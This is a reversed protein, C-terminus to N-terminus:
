FMRLRTSSDLNLGNPYVSLVIGSTYDVISLGYETIALHIRPEALQHTSIIEVLRNNLEIVSNNIWNIVSNRQQVALLSHGSTTRGVGPAFYMTGDINYFTTSVGADRAIHREEKSLNHALLMDGKYRYKAIEDPFYNHLIRIWNDDAFMVREKGGHNAVDILIAKENTLYVLLVEKTRKYFWNGEEVDKSLHFHYINWDNVLHDHKRSQFLSASQFRNVDQGYRLCNAIDTIVEKKPHSDLKNELVPSIHVTRKALSVLKLKITCYDLLLEQPKRKKSYKVGLEDLLHKSIIELDRIFDLEM